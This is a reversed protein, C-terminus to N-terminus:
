SKWFKRSLGNTWDGVRTLLNGLPRRRGRFFYEGRSMIVISPIHAIIPWDEGRERRCRRELHRCGVIRLITLATLSQLGQPLCMLNDCRMIELESLLALNEIGNPLSTLRECHWIRLSRLASLHQICEPLSNLEPCDNVLLDRLSTLYRVGDSLSALKQCGQFWLSSLSSLGRLGDEPLTVLSNCESLHLRELSSLNELGAPINELELCDQLDLQELASLNDLLNSLSKLKKFRIELSELHKHNQLLGDPMVTLGDFGGLLLSTLFTFHMVSSLLSVSTKSIELIKLSQLMPMEVLKPCDRIVLSRLQPFNEKGKVTTWEEFSLMNEFCLSELSSFSSEGDGYFSNDISKLADMGTITLSKLFGLKGLPPLCECRECNVLTIDVLNPVLLDMLWYSFKPGHYNRISLTKLSSHPQLGSLVEEANEHLYCNDIKRWSLGLSRLNQKMILNASKADILSKVNDLEEICLEGELALGKLEDICCGRDKGVIFMSLRRLCSLQGLGVPMRTLANCYKIDLYTLSKLLKLGKPLKRLHYCCILNLTQLKQFSCLSEPLTEIGSNVLSLYRLHRFKDDISIKMGGNFTVHLARLHKQKTAIRWHFNNRVFLTRLSCVKPLNDVNSPAFISSNGSAFMHRVTKPATLVLQSPETVSCECSMISQALDHILDHMKCTSNGEFDEVLEQFFSRWALENFIECGMDHLNMQGRAPVFGNAMWLQILQEKSMIYDKPFISCFTFCQRLHPKLRRYSLNLVSLVKSGEDALEWMESEKISLWESEREKFRLLGGLAKLALPVGGCKKVIEKGLAELHPYDESKGMRFARQKFLSWSDDCSLSGLHHIPTTTMMLAVKEIRTTVIVTSGKAGCRFAEKLGEWKEHYENWVDDLVLLFRKGILKEQLHRLLPDLEEISCKGEISEIIAKTLRTIDFDDSVCVWIRLDFAKRISEDNYVLQALTTKGLGGMGCITYVSIGDQDALNNLLMNIIRDLEKDRGYVELENVLSSTKRWETDSVERDELPEMGERLHFKSREGAVADLKERVDKLKHAMKSRFLLQKPLYHFTCVQSRADRQLREKQTNTAFEDLIDDLHYATDKLKGLWNKIAESKWQKEEADLLVAQITSLTSQLSELETKLGGTIGFEELWLSNINELITNLVASLLADAM